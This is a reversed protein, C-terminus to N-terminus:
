NNSRLKLYDLVELWYDKNFEKFSFKRGNGTIEYWEGILGIPYYPLCIILILIKKRM